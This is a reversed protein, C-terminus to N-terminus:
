AVGVDGDEGRGRRARKDARDVELAVLPQYRDIEPQRRVHIGLQGPGASDREKREDLDLFTHEGRGGEIQASVPM